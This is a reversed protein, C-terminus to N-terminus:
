LSKLMEQVKISKSNAYAYTEIISNVQEVTQVRMHYSQLCVGDFYGGIRIVMNKEGQKVFEGDLRLSDKLKIYNNLNTKWADIYELVENGPIRTITGNYRLDPGQFYYEIYWSNPNVVMKGGCNLVEM